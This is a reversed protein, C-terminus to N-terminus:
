SPILKQYDHAWTVTRVKFEYEAGPDLDSITISSASKDTTMGYYHYDPDPTKRFFVQYGGDDESYSIPEWSLVIRNEERGDIEAARASLNEPPLTQTAAFRDSHKDEVANLIEQSSSYLNNYRLDVYLPPERLFSPLDGSLSNGDLWLLLLTDITGLSAPIEGTLQNADLMLSKLKALDGLEPPITGTLNNDPLVIGTVHQNEVTIGYWSGVHINTLWNTKITWNDGGTAHYLSHLAQCEIDPIGNCNQAGAPATLPILVVAALLGAIVLRNKFFIPLTLGPIHQLSMRNWSEM